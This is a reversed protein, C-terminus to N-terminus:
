YFMVPGPCSNNSNFAFIQSTTLQHCIKCGIMLKHLHAGGIHTVMVGGPAFLATCHPASHSGAVQPLLPDNHHRSVPFVYLSDWKLTFIRSISPILARRISHSSKLCWKFLFLYCALVCKEPALFAECKFYHFWNLSHLDEDLDLRKYLSRVKLSSKVWPIQIQPYKM